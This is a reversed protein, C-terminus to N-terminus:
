REYVAADRRLGVCSRMEGLLADVRCLLSQRFVSPANIKHIVRRAAVELQIDV